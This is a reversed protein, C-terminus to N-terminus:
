RRARKQQWQEVAQWARGSDLRAPILGEWRRADGPFHLIGATHTESGPCHKPFTNWPEGLVFLKVPEAYLARILAGQDRQGFREWEDLWRRCFREMRENRAFAWVGGNYQLVEWTGVSKLTETAEERAYRRPLSRLTQQPPADTCIAMDWGDEIWQFLPYVPAVIETDADLYLVSQWEAPALEYAMLKARRGGVDSDPQQIFADEPGIPEAACLAVPVDPMHKKVSEIMRQASARAPAGFAVCYVGRKTYTNSPSKLVVSTAEAQTSRAPSPEAGFAKAFANAHDRCWNEVSYPATAARLAEQDISEEPWAARELAVLLSKLDGRDYRYIGLADPLEDLIGVGRPIVVRVGCALAELPPMPIGEVRSPCVLVDLGQYFSPMEVWSHKRTPMPWGRGSGRWEVRQSIASGVMGKVLDEGKRKNVYTYGSVGVVPKSHPDRRSPIVFRDRELPAACQATAGYASLQDAYLKCTAIRLQVLKATQDFLKAKANGKPEEERHTFYAAVPRDPWERLRTAEFYGSLYLIDASTDPAAGLTWGLADHLARAMRPIIRDDQLNQCVVHVRPAM